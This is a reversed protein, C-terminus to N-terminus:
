APAVDGAYDRGHLCSVYQKATGETAGRGSRVLRSLVSFVGGADPSMVMSTRLTIKRTLPTDAARLAEEWRHVVDASFSWTESSRLPRVELADHWSARSSTRVAISRMVTFRRPARM